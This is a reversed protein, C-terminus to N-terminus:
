SALLEQSFWFCLRSHLITKLCQPISTESRSKLPVVTAPVLHKLSVYLGVNWLVVVQIVARRYEDYVNISGLFGSCSASRCEAGFVCTRGAPFVTTSPDSEEAVEASM